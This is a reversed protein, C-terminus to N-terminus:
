QMNAKADKVAAIFAAIGAPISAGLIVITPTM